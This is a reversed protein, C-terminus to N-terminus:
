AVGEGDGAALPDRVFPAASRTALGAGIRGRPVPDAGPVADLSFRRRLARLLRRRARFLRAKVLDGPIGCEMATDRCSQRGGYFSTLVLRDEPRLDALEGELLALAESKEVLWSGCQVWVDVDVEETPAELSDVLEDVGRRRDRQDRRVHDALVNGAIRMAWGKLRQRDRLGRRYRAARLLTEQVVDDVESDDRCRRVLFRQLDERLCELGSWATAPEVLEYM